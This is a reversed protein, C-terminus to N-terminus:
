WRPAWRPPPGYLVLEDIGSSGAHHQVHQTIAAALLRIKVRESCAEREALVMKGSYISGTMCDVSGMLRVAMKM